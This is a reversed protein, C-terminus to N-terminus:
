RASFGTHGFGTVLELTHQASFLQLLVHCISHSPVWDSPFSAVSLAPFDRFRVKEETRRGLECEQQRGHTQDGRRGKVSFNLNMPVLDLTECM